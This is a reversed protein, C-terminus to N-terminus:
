EQVVCTGEQTLPRQDQGGTGIGVMLVTAHNRTGTSCVPKIECEVRSVYPPYMGETDKLYPNARYRMLLVVM